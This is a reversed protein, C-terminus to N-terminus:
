KKTFMPPKSVLTNFDAFIPNINEKQVEVFKDGPQGNAAKKAEAKEFQRKFVDALPTALSPTIIRKCLVQAFVLSTIVAFGAKGAKKSVNTLIEAAKEADQVKAKKLVNVMKQAAEKGFYKDAIVSDFKKTTFKNIYTGTVLPILVNMIGNSLDLAAVFKRKEDPIEKNRLSQTVYYYCNVGDKTITSILALNALQLATPNKSFVQKGIKSSFLRDFRNKIPSIPMAM